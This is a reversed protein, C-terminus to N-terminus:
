LAEKATGLFLAGNGFQFHCQWKLDFKLTKLQRFTHPNFIAIHSDCFVAVSKDNLQKIAHIYLYSRKLHVLTHQQTPTQM